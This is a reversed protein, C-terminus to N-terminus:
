KAITNLEPIAQPDVHNNKAARLKFLRSIRSVGFRDFMSSVRIGVYFAESSLAEGSHIMDEAHGVLCKCNPSVVWDSVSWEQAELIRDKGEDPQSDIYRAIRGM